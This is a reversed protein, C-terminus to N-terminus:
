DDPNPGAFQALGDTLTYYDGKEAVFIHEALWGGTPGDVAGAEVSFVGDSTRFYLSSGCTSCFGRTGGGPTAFEALGSKAQWMVDAEAADFSASYHGSLKRCQQCHCATIRGAPGPVVFAVSRCLCSVPISGTAPGHGAPTQAADPGSGEPVYYDGADAVFIHEAVALGTGGDLAGPSFSMRAEADAQWFLTAGCHRCFGRSATDSARYWALGLDRVLHFRELPVSSAAWYHGSTKRCQTCHCAVVPRLPATVEFAVAGCLCSGVHVDGPM